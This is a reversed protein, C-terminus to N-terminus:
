LDRRAQRYAEAQWYAKSIGRLYYGARDEQGTALFDLITKAHIESNDGYFSERMAEAFNDPRLPNFEVKLLRAEEHSYAAEALDAAIDAAEKRRLDQKLNDM